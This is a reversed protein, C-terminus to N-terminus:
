SAIREAVSVTFIGWEDIRQEVKRVGAATVIERVTTAAYGKRAFLRAAGQLLRERANSDISDPPRGSVLRSNSFNPKM